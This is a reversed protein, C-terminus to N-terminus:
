KHKRKRAARRQRKKGQLWLYFGSVSLLILLIASLDMVVVGTRGLIRGSHLDLVVQQWKLIRARAKRALRDRLAPDARSPRVWRVATATYKHWKLLSGDARMLGGATAVVVRGNPDTGLKLMMAPLGSAPGLREVLRGRTTLLIASNRMAVFIVPGTQVAGILPEETPILHRDDFLLAKGTHVIRHSGVHFVTLDIDPRIGYWDLLWDQTVYNRDLGLKETHNLMIGSFSLILVFVAAWLGLIRHWVYLSKLKFRRKRSHRTM